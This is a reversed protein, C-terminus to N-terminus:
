IMCGAICHTWLNVLSWCLRIALIMIYLITYDKKMERTFEVRDTQRNM